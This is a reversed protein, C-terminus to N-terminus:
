ITDFFIKLKLKELLMHHKPEKTTFYFNKQYFVIVM